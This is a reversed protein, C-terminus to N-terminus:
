AAGGTALELSKAGGVGSRDRLPEPGDRPEAPVVELGVLGVGVGGQERHPSAEM